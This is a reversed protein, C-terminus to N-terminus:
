FLRPKLSGGCCTEMLKRLFSELHPLCRADKSATASQPFKAFAGTKAKFAVTYAIIDCLGKVEHILSLGTKGLCLLCDKRRINGILDAGTHM